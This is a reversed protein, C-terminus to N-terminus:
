TGDGDSDPDTGSRAPFVGFLVPNGMEDFVHQELSGGRTRCFVDRARHIGDATSGAWACGVSDRARVCVGGVLWRGRGNVADGVWARMARREFFSRSCTCTHRPTGEYGM